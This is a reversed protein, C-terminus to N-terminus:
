FIPLGSLISAKFGQSEVSINKVKFYGNGADWYNTRVIRSKKSNENPYIHLERSYGDDNEHVVISGSLREFHLYPEYIIPLYEIVDRGGSSGYNIIMRWEGDDLTIMQVRMFTSDFKTYEIDLSATHRGVVGEHRGVLRKDTSLQSSFTYGSFVLNDGNKVYEPFGTSNSEPFNFVADNVWSNIHRHVPYETNKKVSLFCGSSIFSFFLLISVKLISKEDTM